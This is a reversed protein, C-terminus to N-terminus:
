RWIVGLVGLSFCRTAVTLIVESVVVGGVWATLHASLSFTGLVREEGKRGRGTM